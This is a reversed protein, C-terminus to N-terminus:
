LIYFDMFYMVGTFLHFPGGASRSIVHLRPPWASRGTMISKANPTLILDCSYSKQREASKLIKSNSLMVDSLLPAKRM